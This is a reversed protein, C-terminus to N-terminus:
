YGFVQQEFALNQVQSVAGGRTLVLTRSHLAALDEFTM